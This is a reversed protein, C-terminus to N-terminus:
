NRGYKTGVLLVLQSFELTHWKVSNLALGATGNALAVQDGKHPDVQTTSGDSM